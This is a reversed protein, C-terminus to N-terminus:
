RAHRWAWPPVPARDVWLGRRERRAENEAFEYARRIDTSQEAAYGRYWWALGAQIQALNIDHGDRYVVGVLRDYSDRKYWNVLVDRRHVLFALNNRARNAFRQGQEPADIGALRVRYQRQEADLVVISDGDLVSVVKGHLEAARADFLAIALCTALLWRTVRQREKSRSSNWGLPL